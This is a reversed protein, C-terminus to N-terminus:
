RIRVSVPASRNGADDVAEITVYNANAPAALALQELTGSAQPAPEGSAEDAGLFEGADLAHPSFRVDYSKATGVVNDDGSATFSLAVKGDARRDAALDTVVAPRRTDLGYQGTNREDHRGHWWQDNRAADGSIRWDFLDGERTGFVLHQVGDLRPDGVTGAFGNWQGTYKPFGPAEAGTPGWAHVYYNDNTEIAARTPGGTGADAILPADYFPFGDQRVPFGPSAVQGTTPDWAKEYVQPLGAQGAGDLATLISEVGTTSQVFSPKGAGLLDGFGGQGTLTLTHTDGTPRYPPNPACAASECAMDMKKFVSGDGNLLEMPGTVAGSMVKLGSGDVDAFTPPAVGNGVFDISEDYCFSLAPLAVPWNPLYAGGAHDNGDPWVGYLWAKSAPNSGVPTLGLVTDQTAASDGSCDFSSVFVQPKGKGLVDAVGVAYMLKPDLNMKKPDVGDRTAAAQPLKIEVPWGPVRSGDPRWAYVKRDWGGVIADLEGNGELPALVPQAWAGKISTKSDPNPSRVTPVDHQDAVEDMSAPYGHLARGRSDWAYMRGNMGTAIIDLEGDGRMDGVAVGSLPDRLDRFEPHTDYARAHFGMPAYRDFSRITSSHVPFGPLEHGNPRQAHVDGDYTSFILDQEHRGELDAFTPAGSVESGVRRPKGGVLSPDTRLGISRRDEGKLGNGDVLRLRISVTYQEAGDPQLTNLAPKSAYLAQIKALDVTGLRGDMAGTGTSVTFFDADAPDAGPAAELTWTVGKSGIRSPAVTGDVALYRQQTPDVYQYWRPSTIDATPPLKGAMVMETAKGIDPRGYGYQTSWNTHTADTASLPNGPWQRPTYPSQTQPVVESSADMMVQKVENPTLPSPIVGKDVANLGASQVMAGMSAMFPTGGSTSTGYGSFINHTGYSTVSSRARFWTTTADQGATWNSDKALSNGVLVHNWLMGDTHDMSDFDNSDLSLVVGHDYAYDIAKQNFSSYAYSVVVSSVTTAGLDTAYLIAAGWHDPRGLCESGQKIPVVSCSRCEGVSEYGNNAMGAVDSILGPAHGYTTDEYQPDNTNRDFNWGSVDDTYGNHDDDKGDSFVVILDEPSLYPTLKGGIHVSNLYAHRGGAVCSRSTGEVDVAAFPATGDPCSPNVRPDNIYDRLDFHGDGNADYALAHGDADQPRPLEKQNIFINDLGDKVNDSDYNVGGEVYAILIDPRGINGQRWAGTFNIGMSNDPDRALPFTAPDIGEAPGKYNWQGAFGPDNPQNVPDAAVGLTPVALATILAALLAASRPSM